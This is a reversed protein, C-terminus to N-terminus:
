KRKIESPLRLEGRPSLSVKLIKPGEPMPQRKFQQNFFRDYFRQVYTKSAKPSLGFAHNLLWSAREELTGSVLFHYLLFDNIVYKGIQDETKQESTLEPTIPRKLVRYLIDSHSPYTHRAHYDILAQVWTKTLGSNIGYMSMHDGNFTMWGLAIESMDGTGLVFAGEQNALDMLIMTRMRAQANEYTIDEKGQHGLDKLHSKVIKAIPIERADIDLAAMLLHADSKTQKSTVDGPMTVGIINKVNRDLKTFAQHAVLLALTSDLGGSIGIIVKIQSPMSKLKQILARVQIEHALRYDADHNHTPLFPLKNLPLEFQYKENVKFSVPIRKISVQQFVQDDRFTSDIRRQYKIAEVDLDTILIEEEDFISSEAVLEGLSAVLKHSSFVVDSTSESSGNSTYLYAGVQKRSSNIVTYKRQKTKSVYETSASLNVMIHAGALSLVDGPTQVAWMDQCIEIGFAIDQKSDEFILRGFPVEKELLSITNQHISHGSQFWRKEYFEKSNPLFYKPVVGLIKQQQIVVACNYLVDRIKLPIGLVYVGEYTTKEMIEKLAQLSQNLFESQYFLDGATYGTIGLEPFVLLGSKTEDLIKLIPKVNLLPNGIKIKPTALAVKLYSHMTM